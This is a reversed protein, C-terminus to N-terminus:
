IDTRHEDYDVYRIRCKLVFTEKAVDIELSGNAGENNEWGPHHLELALCALSELGDSLSTTTSDSCGVNKCTEALLLEIAPCDVVANNAALCTIDEIAGSDGYGDYTIEVTTIGAKRLPPIVASRLANLETKAENKRELMQAAFDIIPTAPQSM